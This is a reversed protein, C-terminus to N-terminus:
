TLIGALPAPSNKNMQSAHIIDSKIKKLDIFNNSGLYEPM